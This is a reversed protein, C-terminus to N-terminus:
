PSAGERPRGFMETRVCVILTIRDGQSKNEVWHPLRNDFLWVEGPKPALCEIGLGDEAGFIAGPESEISVYLKDTYQVHWSDDAHREIGEGSPIRTILVGCLMEAEVAAMLSFIIPRLAPLRHWAPYWVPVHRDNFGTWDGAARFFRDDQYRVWIDSMRAHPTGPATKRRTHRDWLDPQAALQRRLNDVPVDGLRRFQRLAQAGPWPRFVGSARPAAAVPGLDNAASM